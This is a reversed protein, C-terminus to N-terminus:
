CSSTAPGPFPMTSVNSREPFRNCSNAWPAHKVRGPAQRERRRRAETFQTALQQDPIETVALDIREIWHIAVGGGDKREVLGGDWWFRDNNIPQPGDFEPVVAISPRARLEIEGGAGVVFRIAQEAGEAGSM